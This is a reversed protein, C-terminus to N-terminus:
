DRDGKLLRVGTATIELGEQPGRIEDPDEGADEAYHRAVDEPVEVQSLVGQVYAVRGAADKPMFFAYDEFLVRVPDPGEGLIMWCGKKQCVQAVPARVVITKGVFREPMKMVQAFAVHQHSTIGEGFDEGPPLVGALAPGAALLAFVSFLVANRTRHHM